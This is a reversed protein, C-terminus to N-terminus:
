DFLSLARPMMIATDTRQYEGATSSVFHRHDGYADIMRPLMQAVVMADSYASHAMGPNLQYRRTLTELKHNPYEETKEHIQRSLWYTCLGPMTAIDAGARKFESAVFREDFLAHHAVFIAGSFIAQVHETIDAFTPADRVMSESVGHISTMGVNGDTPNILTHFSNVVDGNPRIRIAAFEIVRAEKNPDLGSTEVDVVVYDNNLQYDGESKDGGYHVFHEQRGPFAFRVDHQASAGDRALTM